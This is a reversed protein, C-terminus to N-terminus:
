HLQRESRDGTDTDMAETIFWEMIFWQITRRHISQLITSPGIRDTLGTLGILDTAM